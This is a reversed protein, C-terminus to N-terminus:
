RKTRKNEKADDDVGPENGENAVWLPPARRNKDDCCGSGPLRAEIRLM